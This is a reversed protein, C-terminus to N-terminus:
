QYGTHNQRFESVDGNEDIHILRDRPFEDEYYLPLFNQAHTQESIIRNFEVDNVIVGDSDVNVIQTCNDNTSAWKLEAAPVEVIKRNVRKPIMAMELRQSPGFDGMHQKVFLVADSHAAIQSFWLAWKPM